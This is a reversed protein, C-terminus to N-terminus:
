IWPTAAFSALHSLFRHRFRLLSPISLIGAQRCSVTGEECWGTYTVEKTTVNLGVIRMYEDLSRSKGMTYQEVATLISRTPLMDKAAEPYGLQYKIGAHTTVNLLIDPLCREYGLDQTLM